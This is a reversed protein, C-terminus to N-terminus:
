TQEIMMLVIQHALFTPTSPHTPTLGSFLLKKEWSAVFVFFLKTLELNLLFPLCENCEIPFPFLKKTRDLISLHVGTLEHIHTNPTHTHKHTQTHTFPRYPSPSPPSPPYRILCM